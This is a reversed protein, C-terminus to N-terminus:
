LRTTDARERDARTEMGPSKKLERESGVFNSGNRCRLQKVEGRRNIFRRLCMIFEDTDITNRGCEVDIHKANLEKYLQM